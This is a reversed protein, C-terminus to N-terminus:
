RLSWGGASGRSCRPTGCSSPSGARKDGHEDDRPAAVEEEVDRDGVGVREVREHDVAEGFAGLDGVHVRRDDVLVDAPRHELRSPRRLSRRRPRRARGCRPGDCVRGSRDAGSGDAARGAGEAVSAGGRGLREVRGRLAHLRPDAAGDRAPRRAAPLPRRRRARGLRRAAAVRRPLARGGVAVAPAPGDTGWVIRVPCAIREADLHWGERM